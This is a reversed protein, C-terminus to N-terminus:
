ADSTDWVSPGKVFPRARVDAIVQGVLGQQEDDLRRFQEPFLLSYRAYWDRARLEALLAPSRTDDGKSHPGLRTTAFEIVAPAHDDRVAQVVPAALFRIRNIDTTTVHQYAVGFGRARGAISGAMQHQTLTSQAIGNNEVIFLVPLQWLQAINLSEYVVGEGWTGDGVYAVAISRAASRKFLLALGCAVPLSQGQIGTSMFSDRLLHQSGGAGGCVAGERGMIEALLGAPDAYRALYHGHGRHNSFVFDEDRLLQRMAVPVYEQGLCTHTTGSVLGQSFLDLIALEFHRLLLLLRLDADSLESLTNDPDDCKPLSGHCVMTRM